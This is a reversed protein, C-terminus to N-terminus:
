NLTVIILWPNDYVSAYKLSSYFEPLAAKVNYNLEISQLIELPHMTMFLISDNIAGAPWFDIVGDVDNEIKSNGICWIENSIKDIVLHRVKANSLVKIFFYNETEIVDRISAYKQSNNADKVNDFINTPMKLSGLLFSYKPKLVADPLIRYITDYYFQWLSLTDHYTYLRNIAIALTNKESLPEKRYLFRESIEGSGMILAMNFGRNYQTFPRITYALVRDDYFPAFYQFYEKILKIEKVFETNYNFFLLSRLDDDYILIHKRIKDLNFFIPRKLLFSSDKRISNLLDGKLNYIFIGEDKEFVFILSDDIEVKEVKSITYSDQKKLNVYLTSNSIKSLKFTNAGDLVKKELDYTFVNKDPYQSPNIKNCCVLIFSLLLFALAKKIKKIHSVYTKSRLVEIM